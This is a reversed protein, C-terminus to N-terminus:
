DVPVSARVRAFFRAPSTGDSIDAKLFELREHPGLAVSPTVPTWSGPGDFAGEFSEMRYELTPLFRTSEISVHTATQYVRVPSRRDSVLPNGLYALEEFNTAGDHDPDEGGQASLNGFYSREWDDHLDDEDTDLGSVRSCISVGEGFYKTAPMWNTGMIPPESSPSLLREFDRALRNYFTMEEANLLRDVTEVVFLVGFHRQAELPLPIRDGELAVIDEATVTTTVEEPLVPDGDLLRLVAIKSSDDFVMLPDVESAPIFGALYRDLPAMRRVRSRHQEPDLLWGGGEQPIWAIGGLISGVNSQVKWHPSGNMLGLSADLDASWQHTIEHLVNNIKIGRRGFDILNVSKLRGESGYLATSDFPEIGIGEIQNQTRVHLGTLSNRVSGKPLQEGRITSLVVIFDYDDGVKEYIMQVFSKLDSYSWYGLLHLRNMAAPGDDNRLNLLHSSFQHREGSDIVSSLDIAPDLIGVCPEGLFETESGDSEVITFRGTDEYDVGDLSESERLYHLPHVPPILTFLGSTFVGDGAVADGDEGDDLFDTRSVSFCAVPESLYIRDVARGPMVQIRFSQSGDSRVVSPVVEFYQSDYPVVLDLSGPVGRDELCTGCSEGGGAVVPVAVVIVLVM